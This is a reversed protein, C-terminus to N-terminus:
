SLLYYPICGCQKAFAFSQCEHECNQKTYVKFLKLQKERDLYCNRRQFSMEKLENSILTQQPFIDIVSHHFQQYFHSSSDSPLEDAPHVILHLGDVPEIEIFKPDIYRHNFRLELM